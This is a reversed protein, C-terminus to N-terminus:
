SEPILDTNEEFNYLFDDKGEEVGETTEESFKREVLHFQLQGFITSNVLDVIYVRFYIYFM